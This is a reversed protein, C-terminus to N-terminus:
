NNTIEILDSLIEFSEIIYADTEIRKMIGSNIELDLDYMSSMGKLYQPNSVKFAETKKQGASASELIMKYFDNFSEFQLPIDVLKNINALVKASQSVKTFVSDEDVRTLSKSKLAGIPMAVLPRFYAKKSTQGPALSSPFFNEGQDMFDYLDPLAIDPIVGMKQHSTGDVRYFKGTTVKLYAPSKSLAADVKNYKYADLPLVQQATSKGYTSSGVILGRNYDQMSAAFLESASASFRNVLVILPKNFVTGRNMDKMTFPEEGRSEVICLSGFDIFIGAMKIAEDMFGGGNDRLDLILGEIGERKLKILERAVDNACGDSGNLDFGRNSYFSPLYIYGTKVKGELIFSKIINEEVDIKQKELVVKAEKGSAKRVLFTGTKQQDSVMINAVEYNSICSFDKFPYGPAEFGLIVDGENLKQSKWAPGGPLLSEIVLEESENKGLVLGFSYTERSLQTEFRDQDAISFYNTHPDYAASVANLFIEGVYLEIGQKSNLKKRIKCVQADILRQKIEEIKSESPKSVNAITDNSLVISSLIKLKLYKRWKDKIAAPSQYEKGPEISLSEDISLDFNEQKFSQILSDTSQLRKRYLDTTLSLFHCKNMQIENDIKLEYAKLIDVEKSTFYFGDKDLTHLFEQFVFRSFEDDVQRPEYHFKEATKTIMLAQQCLPVQQSYVNVPGILGTLLIFLLPINVTFVIRNMEKKFFFHVPFGSM